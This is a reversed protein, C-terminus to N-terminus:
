LSPCRTLRGTLRSTSPSMMAKLGPWSDKAERRPMLTAPPEEGERSISHSPGGATTPPDGPKMRVSAAWSEPKRPLARPFISFLQFMKRKM